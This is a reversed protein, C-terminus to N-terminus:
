PQEREHLDRAERKLENALRPLTADTYDTYRGAELDAEAEDLAALLELRAREGEEWRVMADRVADEVSPYRGSAVAKRIFAEQDPTLQVEMARLKISTHLGTLMVAASHRGRQADKGSDTSGPASVASVARGPNLGPSNKRSGVSSKRVAAVETPTLERWKGVELGALTLPGLGTRVLKLVKFGVAEVMRRVERNKGEALVVELWTYKGRDELRRVSIPSAFDGRKMEVGANLKTVTEDSLIGSTKVLYTKLVKSHSSTVHDAFETDNTLLLLGSTDRDLRGVPSVWKSIEKLYEYVTRREGPDGHSTIVGKPKYLVLYIKRAPKLRQGDLHLTVEDLRVWLDPDRVVKGNVKLKGALIAERAATRSALGFRSLVRDLTM